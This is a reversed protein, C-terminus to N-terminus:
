ARGYGLRTMWHDTEGETGGFKRQAQRNPLEPFGPLCNPGCPVGMAVESDAPWIAMEVEANDPRTAPWSPHPIGTLLAPVGGLRSASLGSSRGRFVTLAGSM